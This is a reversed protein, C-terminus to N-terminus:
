RNGLIKQKEIDYETQTIAGKDLLEKFKLLEDSRSKTQPNNYIIIPKDPTLAWVLAVVWGIFSWGLFLNLLVIATADRKKRGLIAPLFYILVGIVLLLLIPFLSQNAPVQLIRM